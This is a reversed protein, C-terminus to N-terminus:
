KSAEFFEITKIFAGGKGGGGAKSTDIGFAIGGQRLVPEGPGADAVDTIWASATLKNKQPTSPVFPTQGNRQL